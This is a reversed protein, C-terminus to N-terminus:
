SEIDFEEKGTKNIRLEKEKLKLRSLEVKIKEIRKRNKM